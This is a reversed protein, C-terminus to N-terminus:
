TFQGQPPPGPPTGSGFVKNTATIISIGDAFKQAFDAVVITPTLAETIKTIGAAGQASTVGGVGFPSGVIQIALLGKEIADAIDKAVGVSTKTDLPPAWAKLLGTQVIPIAATPFVMGGQSVHQGDFWYTGIAFAVKQATIVHSPHTTSFINILSSTLSGKNLAM